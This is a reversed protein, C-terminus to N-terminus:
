KLYRKLIKGSATRPLKKYYLFKSPTKFEGLKLRCIKLIKLETIKKKNIVAHCCIDEGFFDHKYSKIAVEKVGSIKSIVNEIESPLLNVGGKIIIDKMRDEYYLFGDESFKGIDGTKFYGNYFLKNKNKYYGFLSFNNKIMIVGEVNKKNTLKKKHLIKCTVGALPMGISGVKRNKFFPDDFHTAGTESLGYLNSVKVKFKYEFDKQIKKDLYASGCGIFKITKLSPPKNGITLISKLITPVTQFYTVNFKKVVNWLNNKIKWYSEFIIIKGGLCICHKISYRLVSTHGFPLFCLHIPKKKTFKSKILAIQGNIMSKNQYQIIKSEDTTGSSLYFCSIDKGLIKKKFLKKNKYNKKLFKYFYNNEKIEILNFKKLHNKLYKNLFIVSPNIKDLNVKISELGSTLPIPNIITKYRISAFYLILFDISNPLILSIKDGEKINNDKFYHCCKHVLDNFESYTVEINKDVIFIKNKYKISNFELIESFNDFKKLFKLKNNVVM